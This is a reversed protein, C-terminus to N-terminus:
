RRRPATRTTKKAPAKAGAKSRTNKSSRPAPKRGSGAKPRANCNKLDGKRAADIAARLGDSIEYKGRAIDESAFTFIDKMYAWPDSIRLFRDGDFTYFRGRMLPESMVGVCYAEDPKMKGVIRWCDDYTLLRSEGNDDCILDALDYAEGMNSSLYRIIANSLFYPSDGESYERFRSDGPM